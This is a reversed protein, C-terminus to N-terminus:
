PRGDNRLGFGHKILSVMADIGDDHKADYTYDKVNQIFNENAELLGGDNIVSSSLKHLGMNPVQDAFSIIKHHKNETSNIPTCPIGARALMDPMGAGVGNTEVYLARVGFKHILFEIRPLLDFWAEQFMFGLTVFKGTNMFVNGIAIGTFDGKGASPDIFMVNNPALYDVTEIKAYALSPDDPVNLFYSMQITRESVTRRMKELDPKYITGFFKDPIMDWTQKMTPIVDWLTAYLDKNSVPQGIIAVNQNLKMIEDYKDKVRLRETASWADLETVPDDLIILKPHLGRFGRGGLALGKCNAQSESSKKGAVNLKLGNCETLPVGNAELAAGVARVLEAARKAEKTIIGITFDNNLYIEYAAGIISCTVSKGTGRCGMLMRPENGSRYIFNYQEMQFSELPNYGARVAFENLSIKNDKSHDSMFNLKPLTLFGL